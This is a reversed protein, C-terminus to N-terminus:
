VIAGFKGQSQGLPDDQRTEDGSLAAPVLLFPDLVLARVPHDKLEQPPIIELEKDLLMTIADEMGVARKSCAGSVGVLALPAHIWLLYLRPPIAHRAVWHHVGVQTCESGRAEYAIATTLVYAGEQGNVHVHVPFVPGVM